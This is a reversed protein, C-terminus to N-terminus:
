FMIVSIPPVEEDFKSAAFDWRREKNGCRYHCMSGKWLRDGVKVRKKCKLCSGSKHAHKLVKCHDKLVSASLRAARASKSSSLKAKSSKVSKMSSKGLSSATSRTSKAKSKKSKGSSSRAARSGKGSSGMSVFFCTSAM